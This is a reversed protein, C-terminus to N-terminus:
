QETSCAPLWKHIPLKWWTEVNTYRLGHQVAATDMDDWGIHVTQLLLILLIDLIYQKNKEQKIKKESEWKNIENFPNGVCHDRSKGPLNHTSKGGPVGASFKLYESWRTGPRHSFSSGDLCGWVFLKYWIYIYQYKYVDDNNSNKKNNNNDNNNYINRLIIM